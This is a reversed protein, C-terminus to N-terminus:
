PCSPEPTPAPSPSGARSPSTVARHRRPQPRHDRLGRHNGPGLGTRRAHPGAGLRRPLGSPRHRGPALADPPGLVHVRRKSVHPNDGKRSDRPLPYHHRALGPIATGPGPLHTDPHPWATTSATTSASPTVPRATAGPRARRATTCGAPCTRTTPTRSPDEGGPEPDRAPGAPIVAYATVAVGYYSFETHCYTQPGNDDQHPESILVGGFRLAWRTIARLSPPSPTSTSASSSNTM